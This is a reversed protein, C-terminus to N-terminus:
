WRTKQKKLLLSFVLDKSLVPLEFQSILYLGVLQFVNTLEYYLLDHAFLM